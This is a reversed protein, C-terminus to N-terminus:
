QRQDLSQNFGLSVGVIHLLGKATDASLILKMDRLTGM